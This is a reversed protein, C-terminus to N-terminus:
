IPSELLVGVVSQQNSRHHKAREYRHQKAKRKWLLLLKCSPMEKTGGFWVTCKHKWAFVILPCFIPLTPLVPDFGRRVLWLAVKGWVRECTSELMMVRRRWILYWCSELLVRGYIDFTPSYKLMRKVFM